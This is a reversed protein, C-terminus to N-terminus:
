KISREYAASYSGGTKQIIKLINEKPASPVTSDGIIVQEAVYVPPNDYTVDPVSSVTPTAPVIIPFKPDVVTVEQKEVVAVMKGDHKVFVITLTSPNERIVEIAQPMPLVPTRLYTQLSAWAFWVISLCLLISVFYKWESKLFNM